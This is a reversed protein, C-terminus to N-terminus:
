LEYSTPARMRRVRKTLRHVLYPLPILLGLIWHLRSVIGRAREDGVYYLLYGTIILILLAASLTGGSWRHHRTHWAKVIHIGWLLGGTWLALFAAAGHLKLWWPEFANGPLGYADRSQVLYHEVLWAAGSLWTALGVGNVLLKGRTSLHIGAM